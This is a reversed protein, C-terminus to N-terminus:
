NAAVSSKPSLLKSDFKEDPDAEDGPISSM